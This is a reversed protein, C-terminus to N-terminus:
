AGGELQPHQYERLVKSKAAVWAVTILCGIGGIVVSWPAGKWGALAGAELEGLQPGGMFFIMTVATMRGRLHDPTKLQRITQRLVTSVADAAGTLALAIWSILFIKSAGFIITALGYLVVSWLVALGQYRITRGFSLAVGAILAGVAEAAALTGYGRAGVHLIDKAFIPLLANASSFFTAFFDLAMTWVLIPTSAVFALGEQLAARNVKVPQTLAPGDDPLPRIALLALIVALFSIANFFYTFVLGGAAILVGALMPGSITAVRFVVMNLSVASPLHERPVLKPLLSQRAPNDFATAAASVVTFVYIHVAALQHTWTLAGLVLSSLALLTQTVLMVKRRDWADAVAGGIMSFLVIPVVRFLGIMGLALPSHTLAYLQWNVAWVQMFTGIGSIGQGIWLLRFDRFKLAPFRAPKIRDPPLNQPPEPSSNSSGARTEKTLM